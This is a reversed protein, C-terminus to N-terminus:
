NRINSPSTHKSSYHFRYTIYVTDRIITFKTYNDFDSGMIKKLEFASIHPTTTVKKGNVFVINKRLSDDNKRLFNHISTSGTNPVAIFIYKHKDSILM